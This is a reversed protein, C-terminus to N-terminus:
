ENKIMSIDNEIHVKYKREVFKINFFEEVEKSYPMVNFNSFKMFDNDVNQIFFVGYAERTLVDCHIVIANMGRICLNFLLFPISRESLDECVYLFDNPFYRGPGLEMCKNWWHQIILGGTGSACDYIMGKKNGALKALLLGVENPTFDQKKVKRDAHEQEFYEHFGDNSLDHNWIDLFRMFIENRKPKPLYLIKMLAEPAQYSDKINLIHNIQNVIKLRSDNM